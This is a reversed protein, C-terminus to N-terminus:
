RGPAACPGAPSASGASGRRAGRPCPTASAGSAGDGFGKVVLVAEDSVVGRSMVWHRPGDGLEPQATGLHSASHSPEPRHWLKSLMAAATAPGARSTAGTLLM